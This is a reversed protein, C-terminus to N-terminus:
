TRLKRRPAPMLEWMAIERSPCEAVDMEHLANLMSCSGSFWTRVCRGRCCQQFFSNGQEHCSEPERVLQEFPLNVQNVGPVVVLRNQGAPYRRRASSCRATSIRGSHTPRRKDCRSPSPTVMVTGLQWSRGESGCSPRELGKGLM